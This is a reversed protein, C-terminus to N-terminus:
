LSLLLRAFMSQPHRRLNYRFEFEGLYKPLHKASVHIHTGRISRKIQSWFGEISNTHTKGRVWEEASHNVASHRYGFRRLKGYSKLEDSSITAGSSIHELIHAELTVRRVNAVVRTMVDGDRELM